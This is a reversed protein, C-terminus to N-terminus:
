KLLLNYALASEGFPINLSEGIIPCKAKLLFFINFKTENLNEYNGQGKAIILDANYFANKFEQSGIDPIKGVIDTGSSIVKCIETLGVEEADEILADNIIPGESVVGIVEKNMKRLEEIFIRDFVIEGANDLLYVIKKSKELEIRFYKYHDLALPKKLFENIYEEINIKSLDLIGLDIINGAIAIKIGTYIPDQSNEVINKLKSYLSLAIKNYYKKEDYYPDKVGLIEYCKKLVYYTNLAPSDMQSLSPLIESTKKIISIKTEEDISVRKVASLVQNLFCAFCEAKTRM